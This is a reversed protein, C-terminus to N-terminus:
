NEFNELCEYRCMPCSNMKSLWSTLCWAGFVHGCPLRAPNEAEHDEHSAGYETTCIFCDREEANLSSISVPTLLSSIEALRRAREANRARLITQAASVEALEARQQREMVMRVRFETIAQLRLPTSLRNWPRRSCNKCARGIEISTSPTWRCHPENGCPLSEHIIHGCEMWLYSFWLRCMRSIRTYLNTHQDSTPPQGTSSDTTNKARYDIYVRGTQRCFYISMIGSNVWISCSNIGKDMEVFYSFRFEMTLGLCHSKGPSTGKIISWLLTAIELVPVRRDDGLIVIDSLISHCLLLPSLVRDTSRCTCCLRTTSVATNLPQGNGRAREKFKRNGPKFRAM